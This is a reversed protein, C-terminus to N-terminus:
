PDTRANSSGHSEDTSQKVPLVLRCGDGARLGHREASGNSNTVDSTKEFHSGRVPTSCIGPVLSTLPPTRQVSVTLTLSGLSDVM